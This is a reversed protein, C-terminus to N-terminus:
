HEEKGEGNMAERIKQDLTNMIANFEDYEKKWNRYTAIAVPVTQIATILRVVFNIGVVISATIITGRCGIMTTAFLAYKILVILALAEIELDFLNMISSRIVKVEMADDVKKVLEMFKTTMTKM